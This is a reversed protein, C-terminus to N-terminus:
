QAGAMTLRMPRESGAAAGAFRAPACAALAPDDARGALLGDVVLTATLPALLIGSRYHGTAWILGELPSLGIAPLNDPTGPRLGVCLEEIQLESVGPVVEQCDRLLELIGGVTPQLEFGREEVTAGLVYYDGARPVLYGGSFRVVGRLLGHGVPDRLRLIQGKVPRVPVRERAVGTARSTTRDTEIRVVPQHERLDVGVSACADRLARITLRPDVSHDEPAEFALRVSPAVAPERERAQSPRLRTTALGLSDRLAMQRELERAEDDDRALVLTGTSLLGISMDAARELEDAFAPL